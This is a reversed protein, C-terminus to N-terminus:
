VIGVGSVRESRCFCAPIKQWERSPYVRRRGHSLKGSLIWFDGNDEVGFAAGGAPANVIGFGLPALAAEYFRRSAELDAVRLSVHDVVVRRVVTRQGM